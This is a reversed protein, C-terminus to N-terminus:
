RTRAIQRGMSLQKLIPLRNLNFFVKDDVTSSSRRIQSLLSTYKETNIDSRISCYNPYIDWYDHANCKSVEPVPKEVMVQMNIIFSKWIFSPLCKIVSSLNYAFRKTGLAHDDCDKEGRTISVDHVYCDYEGDVPPVDTDYRIADQLVQEPWSWTVWYKLQRFYSFKVAEMDDELYQITRRRSIADFNSGFAKISKLRLRLTDTVLNFADKDRPQYHDFPETNRVQDDHITRSSSSTSGSASKTKKKLRHRSRKHHKAQQSTCEVLEGEKIDFWISVPRVTPDGVPGFAIEHVLISYGEKMATTPSEEEVEELIVTSSRTVRSQFTKAQLVMCLESNLMHTPMYSYSAGVKGQRLDLVIELMTEEDISRETSPSIDQKRLRDVNCIFEYFNKFSAESKFDDANEDVIPVFGYVPCHNYVYAVRDHYFNDVNVGNAVKNIM